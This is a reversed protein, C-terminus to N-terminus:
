RGERGKEGEEGGRRGGGKKGKRNGERLFARCKDLMQIISGGAQAADSSNIKEKKCGEKREGL